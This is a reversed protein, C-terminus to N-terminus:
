PDRSVVKIYQGIETRRVADYFAPNEQLNELFFQEMSQRNMKWVLVGGPLLLFWWLSGFWFFLAIGAPIMLIALWGYLNLAARQGGSFM